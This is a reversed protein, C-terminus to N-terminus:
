AHSAKNHITPKQAISSFRASHSFSRVMSSDVEHPQLLNDAYDRAIHQWKQAKQNLKIVMSEAPIKEALEKLIWQIYISEADEM